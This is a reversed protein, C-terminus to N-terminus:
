RTMADELGADAPNDLRPARMIRGLTGAAKAPAM